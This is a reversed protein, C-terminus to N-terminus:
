QATSYKFPNEAFAYYIYNVARNTGRGNTLTRLKFGNSLFDVSDGSYNTEVGSSNAISYISNPNATDRTNDYMYWNYGNTDADKIVLFAPKFGTFVFAGSAPFGLYTGFRSFGDVNHFCYAVYADSANTLVHDHLTILTDTPETNNVAADSTAQGNALNHYILKTAGLVEWYMAWGATSDRNKFMIMQPKVGLGHGITAGNTANGTYTVISFGATTNVQVTSQISGDDNTSTTGGNAKWNWAVYTKTNNNINTNTGLSFGDSDFSTILNSLTGDGNTSDMILYKTVGRSSDQLAHATGESRGKMWVWDPQFGVGTISRATANGTYLVTNFHDDAQTTENPSITPEPLNASCLALFGSPVTDYFDGIGNSDQANESGSTKNGAFTSDQGFNMIAGQQYFTSTMKFEASTLTAIPNSGDAPNGTASGSANYYTGNKGLWIKGSAGDYAINVIDGAGLTPFGSGISSGDVYINGANTIYLSFKNTSSAFLEFSAPKVPTTADINYYEFYYKNTKDLPFTIESYKNNGATNQSKLSGESITTISYTPDPANTNWTPFNNEPSDPMNSDYADLNVDKFHNSNATDAGITSSSATSSGDGTEKFELHFGQTGYSGTYKKAIWVGNKTEGFSDATLQTGDVFNIEALYGDIYQTNGTYKAINQQKTDSVRTQYNQGMWGYDTGIVTQQTGNVYVKVRNSATPKHRILHMFLIIGIQLIEYFYIMHKEMILQAMMIM